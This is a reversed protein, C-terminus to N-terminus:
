INITISRQVGMIYYSLKVKRKEEPTRTLIKLVLSQSQGSPVDCGAGTLSYVAIDGSAPIVSAEVWEANCFGKNKLELTAAVLYIGDSNDPIDTTFVQPATGEKLIDIVASYTDEHDSALAALGEVKHDLTGAIHFILVFVLLLALIIALILNIRRM